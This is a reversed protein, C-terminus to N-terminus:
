KTDFLNKEILILIRESARLYDLDKANKRIEALEEDATMNYHVKELEVVMEEVRSSKGQKCATELMSLMRMLSDKNIRRTSNQLCSHVKELLTKPTVPKVVFDKAGAKKADVIVNATGHSSVIIIPIYYYSPNQHIVNLFDIGSLGPMEMDMLILDIRTSDLITMAIDSNKALCVEFTGELITRMTTLTPINDDVVLITKLESEHM